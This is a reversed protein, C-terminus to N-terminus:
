VPVTTSAYTPNTVMGQPRAGDASYYTIANTDDPSQYLPNDAMRVTTAAGSTSSALDAPM